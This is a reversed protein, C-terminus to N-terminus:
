QVYRGDGESELNPYDANKYESDAWERLEKTLEPNEGQIHAAYSRMAKRSAEAYIDKGKPKLVFYKMQLGSM